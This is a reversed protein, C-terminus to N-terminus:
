VEAGRYALFPLDLSPFITGRCFATQLDYPTQWNQWSVYAMAVPLTGTSSCGENQSACRLPSPQPCAPTCNGSPASRMGRSRGMRMSGTPSTRGAAQMNGPYYSNYRSM